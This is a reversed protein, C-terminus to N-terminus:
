PPTNRRGLPLLVVLTQREGRAVDHRAGYVLLHFNVAEVVYAQVHRVFVGLFRFMVERVNVFFAKRYTDVYRLVINGNHRARVVQATAYLHVEVGARRYVPEVGNAFAGARPQVAAVAQGAVREDLGHDVGVLGCAVGDVLIVEIVVYGFPVVLTRHRVLFLHEHRLVHLFHPLGHRVVNAYHAGVQSQLAGPCAQVYEVLLGFFQELAYLGRAVDAFQAVHNVYSVQNGALGHLALFAASQVIRYVIRM